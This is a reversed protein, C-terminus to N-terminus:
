SPQDGRLRFTEIDMELRMTRDARVNLREVTVFYPSATIALLLDDLGREDLTVLAKASIRELRSAIEETMEGEVLVPNVRLQLQTVEFGNEVMKERLWNEFSAQALGSTRGPWLRAELEALQATSSQARAAWDIGELSQEQFLVDRRLSEIEAAKESNAQLILGALYLLLLGGCAALGLRVTPTLQDELQSLQGQVFVLVEDARQRLADM